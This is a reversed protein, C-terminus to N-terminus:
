KATRHFFNSFLIYFFIYLLPPLILSLLSVLNWSGLGFIKEFAAFPVSFSIMLIVPVLIVASVSLFSRWPIQLDSSFLTLPLATLQLVLMSCFLYSDCVAASFVGCWVLIFAYLVTVLSTVSTSCICRYEKFIRGAHTPSFAHPKRLRNQPIFVSLLWLVCITECIVGGFLLQAGSMLGFGFCVSLITPILHLLQSAILFRLILSYRYDSARCDSIIRLLSYLGGELKTARHIVVDAYCRVASPSAEKLASAHEREAGWIDKERHYLVPDCTVALSASYMLSLDEAHTGLVAVRRKQLKLDKLLRKIEQHSFGIFVRHKEIFTCLDGKTGRVQEATIGKHDYGTSLAYYREEKSDDPLFFSVRVGCQKLEELISPLTTQTQERLAVVGLLITKNEIRKLIIHLRCGEEQASAIFDRLRKRVLDNLPNEKGCNEFHSCHDLWALRGSFLLYFDADKTKIDLIDERSEERYLHQVSLLRVQLAEADYDCVRLLEQHSTSFDTQRDATSLTYPACPKAQELLLFAECLAQLAPNARGDRVQQEGTGTACRFLHMKGDSIGCHGIVFIDTLSSLREVARTSKLVVRKELQTERFHKDKLRIIPIQFRFSLLAQSGITILASLSLFISLISVDEPATLMGVVTLPLLLVFLIFSYFRIFPRVCSVGDCRKVAPVELTFEKMAGIYTQEGVATVLARAEGDLVESCGFLMNELNPAHTQNGYPYITEAKKVTVTWIPKGKEDPSPTRIAFNNAFLLRCDCPVIDGKKLLIIDGKVLNSASTLYEKGDRVVCVTPVRYKAIDTVFRKEMLLLRIAFCIGLAFCVLTSIGTIMESFCISLICAFLLLLLAPDTFLSKLIKSNEKQSAVFLTNEGFKRYRSRAEKRSLGCSANTHLKKVADDSSMQHWKVNEKEM